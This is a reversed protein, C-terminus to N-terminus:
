NWQVPDTESQSPWVTLEPLEATLLKCLQEVGPRETAYHGPLVLAVGSERAKLCDHFRAEGTLLVQCDGSAADPIFEAASGCAIALRRLRTSSDGVFQLAGIRLRQKVLEMFEGLPMERPLVGCRGSGESGPAPQLPYVDFAPVEYPHARRLASIVDSLDRPSCVTELRIEDVTEFRGAEGIAPHSAQSGLFTGNGPSSFSCSRYEGIQGAGASWLAQRVAELQGPPVFTVVKLKAEAMRRRLPVIENLEFLEALQQNIGRTASDYGTHPSHVACGAAILRLLTASEPDRATIKQVPRFLVPHHSVVLEARQEIAEAAVDSTLTLCTMVRSVHASEDGILVGVNDWQEALRTPALHNLVAVIDALRPM